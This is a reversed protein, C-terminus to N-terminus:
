LEVDKEADHWDGSQRVGILFTGFDNSGAINGAVQGVLSDLGTSISDFDRSTLAPLDLRVSTSSPPPLTSVVKRFRDIGATVSDAFDGFLAEGLSRESCSSMILDLVFSVEGPNVIVGDAAGDQEWSYLWDGTVLEWDLRHLGPPVLGCRQLEALLWAHDYGWSLRQRRVEGPLTRPRDILVASPVSWIEGYRMLLSSFLIDECSGLPTGEFFAPVLETRVLLGLARATINSGYALVSTMAFSGDPLWPGTIRRPLQGGTLARQAEEESRAVTPFAAVSRPHDRLCEVLRRLATPDLESDDDLFLTFERKLDLHEENLARLGANRAQAAQYRPVPDRRHRVIGYCISPHQYLQRTLGRAASECLGNDIVLLSLPLEGTETARLVSDIAATLLEGLPDTSRSYTPIIVTVGPQTLSPSTGAPTALYRSLDTLKNM